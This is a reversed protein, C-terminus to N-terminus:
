RCKEKYIIASGIRKPLIINISNGTKKKDGHLDQNSINKITVVPLGANKLLKKIREADKPNLIKKEVAIKNIIVMGISIAFGHLLKYGSMKELVHGFSHGYNLIMRLNGEKEDKEVIQVKIKISDFIIKELAKKDLGLIKKLNREIFNFLNKDKIVGYKIIEALGNKIQKSPLSKLYLPDVFVAKPQTFTGLLNKGNKLDVGTKGGISSDVMALLTTPVQVYPIGRMYIASLLGAIDGVVGGGLAIIADKRDFGKEVMREALSEITQMIKNKEGPTFSLIDAKISNKKLYRLLSNGYLKKVKTDTIILYKKGLKLSRLKQAIKKGLGNEIFVNYSNDIKQALKLRIIKM